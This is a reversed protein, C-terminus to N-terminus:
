PVCDPWNACRTCSRSLLLNGVNISALVLILIAVVQMSYVVTIGGAVSSMPLSDIYASIRHNTKPYQQEIRQMIVSLQLNIEQKSFGDDIHALGRINETEDRSLKNADKRLPLWVEATGPFYYWMM